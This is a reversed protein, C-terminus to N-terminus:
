ALQYNPLHRVPDGVFEKFESTSLFSRLFQYLDKGKYSYFAKSISAVQTKDQLQKKFVEAVIEEDDNFRGRANYLKNALKIATVPDLEKLHKNGLWKKVDQTYNMDFPSNWDPTVLTTAKGGQSLQVANGRSIAITPTLQKKQKKLKWLLYGGISIGAIGIGGMIYWTTKNKKM